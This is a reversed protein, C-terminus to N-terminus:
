FSLGKASGASKMAHYVKGDFSDSSTAGGNAAKYAERKASLDKM